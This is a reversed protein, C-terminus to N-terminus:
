GILGRGKKQIFNQETWDKLIRDLTGNLFKSSKPTSYMKAIEIYENLTVKVPIMPMYKFELLAMTILMYDIKTIRESDWGPTYKSISDDIEAKHAFYVEVLDDAMQLDESENKFLEPIRVKKTEDFHDMVKEIGKLIPVKEDYWFINKDEMLQEFEVSDLLLYKYFARSFDNYTADSLPLSLALKYFDTEKIDKYMVFITDKDALWDITPRQVYTDMDNSALLKEVFTNKTILDFNKVDNESTKFKFDSPNHETEIFHTFAPLFNLVALLNNGMGHMSKKVNKAIVAPNSNEQGFEGFLAQFTKIRILRRNLM